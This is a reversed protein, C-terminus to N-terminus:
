GNHRQRNQQAGDDNDKGEEVCIESLALRLDSGDCIWFRIGVWGLGLWRRGLLRVGFWMGRVLDREKKWNWIGIPNENIEFEETQM